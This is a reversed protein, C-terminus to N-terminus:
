LGVQLWYPISARLAWPKKAPVLRKSQRTRRQAGQPLVPSSGTGSLGQTKREGRASDDSQRGFENRWRALRQLAGRATKIQLKVTRKVARDKRSSERVAHGFGASVTESGTQRLPTRSPSSAQSSPLPMSLSPQEFLQRGLEQPSPTCCSVSAQSSPLSSSSSPQTAPQRKAVQPSPNM